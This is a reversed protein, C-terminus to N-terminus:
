RGSTSARPASFYGTYDSATFANERGGIEALAKSFRGAPNKATGKFMLHELFHAIGSKGPPEDAAGVRYWIMHTVVPTRRDPVVVLELGNALKFHSVEPAAAAPRATASALLAIAAAVFPMLRHLPLNTERIEPRKMRDNTDCDGNPPWRRVLLM